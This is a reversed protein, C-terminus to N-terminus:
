ATELEIELLDLELLLRRARTDADMEVDDRRMSKTANAEPSDDIYMANLLDIGEDAFLSKMASANVVFGGAPMPTYSADLGLPWQVIEHRGDGLAKREVLNPATGSSWGLKGNKAMDYLKAEYVNRLDLLHKVFVGEDDMGLEAENTLQRKGVGPLMRHHVWVASKTHSGYNTNKTFIDHTTSLDGDGGFKVLYGGVWGDNGIAKVSYGPLVAIDEGTDLAALEIAKGASPPGAKDIAKKWASVIKSKIQAVEDPAYKGANDPKNIYNWAARIRDESLEGNEGLPYKKNKADAFMADSGYKSIGEKPSVDERETIAKMQGMRADDAADGAAGELEDLEASIFKVLTRAGDCLMAIHADDEDEEVLESQILMAMTSLANAAQMIDGCEHQAYYLPNDMIGKIAKVGEEEEDEPMDADDDSGCDAGCAVASDHIAQIHQMDTRSHRAGAKIALDTMAKTAEQKPTAKAKDVKAKEKAARAKDREAKIKARAQAKQKQAQQQKKQKAAREAVKAAKAKEREQKAVSKAQEKAASDAAGAKADNLAANAADKDGKDAASKWKRGAPSLTVSGDAHRKALGKEILKNHAEPELDEGGKAMGAAVRVLPGELDGMGTQKAVSARNQNAKEQRTRTDKPKAKAKGKGGKPKAKKVKAALIEAVRARIKPNAMGGTQPAFPQEKKWRVLSAHRAADARSM